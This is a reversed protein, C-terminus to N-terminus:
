DLPLYNKKCKPSHLRDKYKKNKARVDEIIKYYVNFAVFKAGKPNFHVLDPSYLDERNKTLKYIDLCPIKNESLVKRQIDVIQSLIDLNIDLLKKDWFVQPCTMAIICPKNSFSKFFNILRKYEKEFTKADTWNHERSDNTGLMFIIYDPRYEELLNVVDEKAWYKDCYPNVTHGAFGMNLVDYDEGLIRQLRSPYCDRKRKLLTTGYTLSDGVCAIRIGKFDKRAIPLKAMYDGWRKILSIIVCITRIKHNKLLFNCFQESLPNASIGLTFYFENVQCKKLM